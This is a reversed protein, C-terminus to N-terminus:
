FSDQFTSLGVREVKGDTAKIEGLIEWGLPGEVEAQIYSTALVGLCDRWKKFLKFWTFIKKRLFLYWLLLDVEM